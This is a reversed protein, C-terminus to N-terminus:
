RHPFVNTFLGYHLKNQAAATWKLLDAGLTLDPRESVGFNTINRTMHNTQYILPKIPTCNLLKQAHETLYILQLSLLNLLRSLRVQTKNM